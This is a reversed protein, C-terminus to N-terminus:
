VSGTVRSISRKEGYSMVEVEAGPKISNQLDEPIPIEFTEYSELDMIQATNGSISVVQAKKKNILPVEIDGSSPKLLTRKNGDFVGIGTIRMKAAGHKGPASTEVDVVRCPIGDILIFRGTKVEKMSSYTIEESM